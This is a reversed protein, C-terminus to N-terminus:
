PGGELVGLFDEQAKIPSFDARARQRANDSLRARLEADTSLRRVAQALADPQNQDVVLGCEHQKLYWYVFSEGSAQALIPTGSALYDALKGPCSTKVIQPLMDLAFPLFLIDAASQVGAVEAPPVHGHYVVQEGWIGEGQLVEPEIATYLHLKVQELGPGAMGALLNRFAGFNVHYIAGTFVINIEGGQHDRRPPPEPAECPNRVLAPSLHHRKQIEDALFENPVILGAARPFIHAEFRQAMGRMLEDPWQYTYDDFLYPYLAARSLRSALYAAPLLTLDATAVVLAQCGTRGLIGRIKLALRAVNALIRLRRQGDSMGPGNIAMDPPLHFYQGPLGQTFDQDHGEYARSILCYSDPELGRLVRGIVIAQGSWSPPVVPSLFAFKPIM